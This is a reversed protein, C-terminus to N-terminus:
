GQVKPAGLAKLQRTVELANLPFLSALKREHYTMNSRATLFGPRLKREKNIIKDYRSSLAPLCGTRM